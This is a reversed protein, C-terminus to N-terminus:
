KCMLVLVNCTSENLTNSQQQGDADSLTQNAFSNGHEQGDKNSGTQNAFSDGQEQEGENPFKQNTFLYGLEHKSENMSTQNTFPANQKQVGLNLFLKFVWLILKYHNKNGDSQTSTHTPKLCKRQPNELQFPSAMTVTCRLCSKDKIPSEEGIEHFKGPFHDSEIQLVVKGRLLLEHVHPKKVKIEEVVKKCDYILSNSVPYKLQLNTICPAAGIEELVLFVIKHDSESM